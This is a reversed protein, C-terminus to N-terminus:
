STTIKGAPLFRPKELHGYLFLHGPINESLDRPEGEGSPLLYIREHKDSLASYVIDSDMCTPSFLLYLGLNTIKHEKHEGDLEVIFIDSDIGHVWRKQMRLSRTFIVEKTNGCFSPYFDLHKGSTIKLTQLSALNIRIIGREKRNSPNIHNAVIFLGDPSYSPDQVIYGPFYYFKAEMSKIELEAIGCQKDCYTFAIKGGDPSLSIRPIAPQGHGPGPSWLIWWVVSFLLLIGAIFALWLTMKSETKEDM